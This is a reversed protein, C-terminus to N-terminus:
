SKVRRILWEGILYIVVVPWLAAVQVHSAREAYSRYRLGPRTGRTVYYYMGFMGVFYSMFIVGVVINM